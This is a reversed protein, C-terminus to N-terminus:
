WIVVKDFVRPLKLLVIYQVVIRDVMVFKHDPFKAGDGAPCLKQEGAGVMCLCGQGGIRERDKELFPAQIDSVDRGCPVVFAINDDAIVYSDSILRDDQRANGNSVSRDDASAGNHCFVDWRVGDNTANRSLRDAFAERIVHDRGQQLDFPPVPRFLPDPRVNWVDLGPPDITQLRKALLFSTVAWSSAIPCQRM